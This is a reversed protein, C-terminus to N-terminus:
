MNLLVGETVVSNQARITVEPLTALLNEIDEDSLQNPLKYFEESGAKM